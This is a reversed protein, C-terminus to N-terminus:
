LQRLLQTTIRHKNLENKKLYLSDALKLDNLASTRDKLKQYAVGRHHYAEPKNPELKPEEPDETIAVLYLTDSHLPNGTHPSDSM